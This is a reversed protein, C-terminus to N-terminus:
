RSRLQQVIAMAAIAGTFLNAWNIIEMFPWATQCPSPCLTIPTALGAGIPLLLTFILSAIWGGRQGNAARHLSWFYGGFLPAMILSAVAAMAATSAFETYVFQFDVFTRALFLLLALGTLAVARNSVRNTQTLM